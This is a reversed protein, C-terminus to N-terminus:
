AFAYHSTLCPPFPDLGVESGKGDEVLPRVEFDEEANQTAREERDRGEGFQGEVLYTIVLEQM